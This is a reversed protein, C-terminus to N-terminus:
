NIILKQFNNQANFKVFYVGRNLSSLDLKNILVNELSFVCKLSIDYVNINFVENTDFYIFRKTPNPYFQAEKHSPYQELASYYISLNQTKSLTDCLGYSYLTVPYEGENPFQIIPNSESETIFGFDWLQGLNNESLNTFQFELGDLLDYTFDVTHINEGIHWKSLSDYVVTKTAQKIISATIPILNYNYKLLSPDKQFINTYFCCAAAYSGAQSPHSEDAAYLEIAPYNERLYKWLAGVPSLEAQNSDAMMRYRLSLLSDM